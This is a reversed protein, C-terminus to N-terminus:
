VSWDSSACYAERNIRCYLTQYVGGRAPIEGGYGDSPNKNRFLEDIKNIEERYNKGESTDSYEIEGGNLTFNRILLAPAESSEATENEEEGGSLWGFNMEGDAGKQLSVLPNEIRLEEIVLRQKWLYEMPNVNIMLREVAIFDGDKPTKFSLKQM